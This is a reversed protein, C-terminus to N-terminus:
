CISVVAWAPIGVCYRSKGARDRRRAPFPHDRMEFPPIRPRWPTIFLSYNFPLARGWSSV